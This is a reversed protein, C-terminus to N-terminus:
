NPKAALATKVQEEIRATDDDHQYRLSVTLADLSAKLDNLAFLAVGRARYFKSRTEDTIDFETTLARDAYAVVDSYRKLQILTALYENQLENHHPNIALGKEFVALAAAFDGQEYKIWGIAFALSAHNLDPQKVIPLDKSFGIDVGNDRLFSLRAYHYRSYVNIRNGNCAEPKIETAPVANLLAEMPPLSATMRATDKAQIAAFGETLAATMGQSRTFHADCTDQAFAPAACGLTALSAIIFHRIQM